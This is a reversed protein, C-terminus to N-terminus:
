LVLRASNVPHSFGWINFEWTLFGYSFENVLWSPQLHFEPSLVRMIACHTCKRVQETQKSEQYKTHLYKRLNNLFSFARHVARNISHASQPIFSVSFIRTQQGMKGERGRRGGFVCVRGCQHSCDINAPVHRWVAALLAALPMSRIIASRSYEKCKEYIRVSYWRRLTNPILYSIPLFSDNHTQLLYDTNGPLYLITEFQLCQISNWGGGKWVPPVQIHQNLQTLTTQVRLTCPSINCFLEPLYKTKIYLHLSFIYCPFIHMWQTKSQWISYQQNKLLFSFTVFAHIIYFKNNLQTVELM